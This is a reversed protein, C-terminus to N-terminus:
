QLEQSYFIIKQKVKAVCNSIQIRVQYDNKVEVKIQKDKYYTNM